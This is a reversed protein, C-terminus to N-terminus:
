PPSSPPVTTPTVLAQSERTRRGGVRPELISPLSLRDFGQGTKSTLPGDPRPHQRLCTCVCMAASLMIEKINEKHSQTSTYFSADCTKSLSQPCVATHSSNWAEM